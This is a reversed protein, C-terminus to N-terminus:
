DPTARARRRVRPLRAMVGALLMEYLLCAEQRDPRPETLDLVAQRAWLLAAEALDAAGGAHGDAWNGEALTWLGLALLLPEELHLLRHNLAAELDRALGADGLVRAARAQLILALGAWRQDQALAQLKRLYPTAQMAQRRQVLCHVLAALSIRQGETDGKAEYLSHATTLRLVCLGTSFHRRCAALGLLLYTEARRAGPDLPLSARLHIEATRADGAGMAIRGRLFHAGALEAPDGTLAAAGLAGAACRVSDALRGFAFHAEAETRLQVWNGFEVAVCM